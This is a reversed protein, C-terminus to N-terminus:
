LAELFAEEDIDAHRLVRRITNRGVTRHFAVIIFDRRDSHVLKRHSGKQSEM